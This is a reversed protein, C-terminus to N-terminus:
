ANLSGRWLDTLFQNEIVTHEEPSLELCLNQRVDFFRTLLGLFFNALFRSHDDLNEVVGEAFFQGQCRIVLAGRSQVELYQVTVEPDDTVETSFKVEFDRRGLSYEGEQVAVTVSGSAEIMESDDRQLSLRTDIHILM